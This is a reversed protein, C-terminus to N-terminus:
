SNFRKELIVGLMSGKKLIHSLSDFGRKWYTEIFQVRKRNHSVSNFRKEGLFLSHSVSNFSKVIFVVWLISGKKFIVWLISDKREKFIVWFNLTKKLIVWLISSKSIVWLITKEFFFRVWLISGKKRIHSLSNFRKEVHSLSISGKKEVHTMSISGKQEIHTM